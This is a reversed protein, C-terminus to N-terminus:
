RVDGFWRVKLKVGFPQREYTAFFTFSAFYYAKVESEPAVTGLENTSFGLEWYGEDPAAGAGTELCASNGETDYVHWEGKSIDVM